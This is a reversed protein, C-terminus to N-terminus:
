KSHLNRTPVFNSSQRPPLLRPLRTLHQRRVDPEADATTQPPMELAQSAALSLEAGFLTEAIKDDMDEISKARALEVAINELENDSNRSAKPLRVEADGPALQTKLQGSEDFLPTDVSTNQQKHNIANDLTIEPIEVVEDVDNAAVPAPTAEAAETKLVPLEPEPTGHATAMARELAELDPKLEAVTPDRDWEAVEEANSVGSADPAAPEPVLEITPEPETTLEQTPAPEADLIDTSTSIDPILDPIDANSTHEDETDDAPEDRVPTNSTQFGDASLGYSDKAVQELLRNSITQENQTAGATLASDVINNTIRVIGGSLHHLLEFATPEFLHEFDGGVLRFCHRLYGRLEVASLPAIQQRQRIRQQLRALAPIALIEVLREDGMLILNAGDSDGADAATVAELEALTDAGLHPADEVVVFIRTGAAELEALRKRFARFRRITGAPINEIRLEELLQELIDDSDLQMRSLKIVSHDDATTELARTVLTTKGSGIPGTIAVASDNFQLASKLDSIVGATQPGVFVDTGTVTVRFPQKELGFHQAYM